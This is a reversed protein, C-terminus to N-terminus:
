WWRTYVCRGVSHKTLDYFYGMEKEKKARFINENKQKTIKLHSNRGKSYKRKRTDKTYKSIFYIVSVEYATYVNWKMMPFIFFFELGLFIGSESWLADCHRVDTFFLFLSSEARMQLSKESIKKENCTKM